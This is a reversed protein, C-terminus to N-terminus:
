IIYKIKQNKNLNDSINCYCLVNMIRLDFETEKNINKKKVISNIFNRLINTKNTPLNQLIIRNFEKRPNRSSYVRPGLDDYIFTKKTGYIKLVHQHRFVCSLNAVARLIMGSKFTFISSFYDKAKLKFKKTAMNSSHSVVEYPFQKTLWCALDIMHSGGGNIPSYEKSNGRWGKTFKNLRGYLYEVDISYIKGFYNQSIKKKLWQFLPSSRLILNSRIKVKNRNKRWLKVIDKLEKLNNCIPKEVFIHKKNKISQIIQKYHAHDPSAIIILDSNKKKLIEKFNKAYITKLKTSLKKNKKQDSDFISILKTNKNKKIFKAHKEGVGLGSISVKIRKNM